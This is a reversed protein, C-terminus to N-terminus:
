IKQFLRTTTQPAQQNHWLTTTINDKTIPKKFQSSKINKKAGNKSSTQM